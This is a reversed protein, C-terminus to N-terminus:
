GQQAKRKMAGCRACGTRDENPSPNACKVILRDGWKDWECRTPRPAIGPRADAPPPYAARAAAAPAAAQDVPPPYARAIKELFPALPSEPNPRGAPDAPDQPTM